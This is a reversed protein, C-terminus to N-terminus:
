SLKNKKSIIKEYLVSIIDENKASLNIFPNFQNIVTNHTIPFEPLNCINRLKILSIIEIPFYIWQEKHFPYTLDTTKSNNIHFASLKSVCENFTEKNTTFINEFVFSYSETPTIVFHLLSNRIDQPRNYKESLFLALPFISNRGYDGKEIGYKNLKEDLYIAELGKIILPEVADVNQPWYTLIFIYLLCIDAKTYLISSELINHSVQIYTLLDWLYAICLSNYSDHSPNSSFQVISRNINFACLTQLSQELKVKVSKEEGFLIEKHVFVCEGTNLFNNIDIESLERMKKIEEDTIGKNYIKNIRNLTKKTFDIMNLAM